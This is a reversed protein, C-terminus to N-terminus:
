TKGMMEKFADVYPIATTQEKNMMALYWSVYSSFQLVECAEELLDKGRAVYDVVHIGMEEGMDATVTFRKRTRPHYLSSHLFLMATNKSFDKPH